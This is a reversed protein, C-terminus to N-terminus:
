QQTKLIQTVSIDLYYEKDEFRIWEGHKNGRNLEIIYAHRGGPLTTYYIEGNPM